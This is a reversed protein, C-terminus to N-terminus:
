GLQSSGYASVTKGMGNDSEEALQTLTLLYSISDELIEIIKSFM